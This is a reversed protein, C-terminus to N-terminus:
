STGLMYAMIEHATCREASSWTSLSVRSGGITTKSIWTVMPAIHDSNGTPASDFQSGRRKDGNTSSSVLSAYSTTQFSNRSFWYCNGEIKPNRPYSPTTVISSPLTSNSTPWPSRVHISLIYCQLSTNCSRWPCAMWCPHPSSPSM